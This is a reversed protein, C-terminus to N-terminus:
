AQVSRTLLVISSPRGVVSSPLAAGAM